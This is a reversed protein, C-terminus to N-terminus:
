RLHFGVMRQRRGDRDGRIGAAIMKRSIFEQLKMVIVFPNDIALSGTM